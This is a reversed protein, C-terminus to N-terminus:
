NTLTKISCNDKETGYEHKRANTYIYVCKLLASSCIPAGSDIM